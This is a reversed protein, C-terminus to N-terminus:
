RMPQPRSGFSAQVHEALCRAAETVHKNTVHLRVELQELAAFGEREGLVLVGEPVTSAALVTVGLGARVAALIGEYSSSGYTIRWDRQQSRLSQLMRQRYLCPSPAVVLPLTSAEHGLHERSGIWVLAESMLLTGGKEKPDEHLAIVLDFEGKDMRSLLNRSLDCTVELMVNPHTLAFRGLIEPLLLSGYEHPAGLRVAGAIAPRRLSRVADDNLALMRRAYDLLMTGQETLRGRPTGRQFLPVDLMEELRRIQLSVASQTRGVVEGARTFNGLDVAKVFTRLLETPLNLM